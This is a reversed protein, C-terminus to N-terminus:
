FTKGSSNKWEWGGFCATWVFPFRVFNILFITEHNTHIEFECKARNINNVKNIMQLQLIWRFWIYVRLLDAITTMRVTKERNECLDFFNEKSIWNIVHNMRNEKQLRRIGHVSVISIFKNKSFLNKKKKNM